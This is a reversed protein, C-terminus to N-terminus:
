GNELSKGIGHKRRVPRPTGSIASSPAEEWKEQKELDELGSVEVFYSM